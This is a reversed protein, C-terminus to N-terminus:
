TGYSRGRLCRMSALKFCDAHLPDQWDFDHGTADLPSFGGSLRGRARLTTQGETENREPNISRFTQTANGLGPNFARNIERDRELCDFQFTPLRPLLVLLHAVILWPCCLFHLFRVLWPSTPRKPSFLLYDSRQPYRHDGYTWRDLSSSKTISNDTKMEKPSHNWIM